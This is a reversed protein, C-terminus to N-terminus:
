FWVGYKGDFNRMKKSDQKWNIPIDNQNLNNSKEKVGRGLCRDWNLDLRDKVAVKCEDMGERREKGRGNWENETKCYEPCTIKKYIRSYIVDNVKWFKAQPIEEKQFSKGLFMQM